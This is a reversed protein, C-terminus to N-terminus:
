RSKTNPPPDLVENVELQAGIIGVIRSRDKSNM